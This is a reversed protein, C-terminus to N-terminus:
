HFTKAICKKALAQLKDPMTLKGDASPTMTQMTANTYDEETWTKLEDRVCQCYAARTANKTDGGMCSQYDQDLIESPIEALAPVALVALFVVAFFVRM